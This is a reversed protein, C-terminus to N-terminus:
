LNPLLTLIICTNLSKTIKIEVKGMLFMNFEKKNKLFCKSMIRGKLFYRVKNEYCILAHGAMASIKNLKTKEFLYASM